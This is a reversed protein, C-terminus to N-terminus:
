PKGEPRQPTSLATAERSRREEHGAKDSPLTRIDPQYGRKKCWARFKTLLEFLNMREGEDLDQYPAHSLIAVRKM